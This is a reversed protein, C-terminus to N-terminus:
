IDLVEYRKETYTSGISMCQLHRKRFRRERHIHGSFVHTVKPYELLVEGFIEAGHYATAFEWDPLVSHPVMEFFPLHHIAAIVQRAKADVAEIDSRLKAALRQTFATDSMPLKVRVGDMWRTTVQM